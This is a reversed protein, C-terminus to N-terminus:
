MIDENPNRFVLTNNLYSEIDSDVLVVIGNSLGYSGNDSIKNDSGDYSYYYVDNWKKMGEVYDSKLQNIQTNTLGTSNWYVDEGDKDKGVNSIYYKITTIDTSIHSNYLTSNIQRVLEYWKEDAENDNTM